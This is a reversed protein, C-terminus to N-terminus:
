ESDMGWAHVQEIIKRGLKAEKKIVTLNDLAVREDQALAREPTDSVHPNWNLGFYTNDFDPDASQAFALLAAHPQFHNLLNFDKDLVSLQRVRTLGRAEDGFIKQAGGTIVPAQNESVIDHVRLTLDAYRQPDLHFWSVYTLHAPLNQFEAGVTPRELFSAVMFSDEDRKPQTDKKPQTEM